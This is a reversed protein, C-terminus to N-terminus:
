RAEAAPIPAAAGATACHDSHCLWVAIGLRCKQRAADMEPVVRAKSRRRATANARGCAKKLMFGARHMARGFVSRRPAANAPIRAVAHCESYVIADYEQGTLSRRQRPM